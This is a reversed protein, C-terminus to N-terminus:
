DDLPPSIAPPVATEIFYIFMETVHGDDLLLHWGYGGGRHRAPNTEKSMLRPSYATSVGASPLPFGSNCM